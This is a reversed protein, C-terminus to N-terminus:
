RLTLLPTCRNQTFVGRLCFFGELLSLLPQLSAFVLVARKLGAQAQRNRRPTKSLSGVGARSGM